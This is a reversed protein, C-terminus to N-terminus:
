SQALLGNIANVTSKHTMIKSLAKEFEEETVVEFFHSEGINFSISLPYMDIDHGVTFLTFTYNGLSPSVIDFEHIITGDFDKSNISHTSNVKAVLKNKTMDNFYNAQEVLITKPVKMDAQGIKDSWFNKSTTM